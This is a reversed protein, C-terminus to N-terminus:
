MTVCQLMIFSIEKPMVKQLYSKKGKDSCQTDVKSCKANGIYCGAQIKTSAM